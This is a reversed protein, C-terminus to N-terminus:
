KGKEREWQEIKLQNNSKKIKNVWDGPGTSLGGVVGGKDKDKDKDKDKAGQFPSALGKDPFGSLCVLVSKHVRNQENLEGYQFKIFPKIFWKRAQDIEVIREEGQNFLALATNEDVKADDGIKIQAIEFDKYWIGAFNCELCIYDWFIKYAAPLSRIFAKDYKETDAFRKAM